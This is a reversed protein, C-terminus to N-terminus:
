AISGDGADLETDADRRPVLLPLAIPSVRFVLPTALTTVEGDTAVKVRRRGYRLWPRVTMRTLGFSRVDDSDGLSGMAGRLAIGLMALPGVPRLVIAALEGHEVVEAEAIGISQLQLVNNGVFLTTTRVIDGTAEAHDEHAIDIVLQRHERLLTALGSWWAVLRSRGFKRKDDERRELLDPYLGLSANVLFVRDNVLGFQIPRIVADLLGRAAAETDESIGHTRGFYNFTGQPIVGFPRGSRHAAQLVANITGDGGAAVIAGRQEIGLATVHEATERMARPDTVVVLEHRRGASELVNRITREAIAADGHGSAANLLVFLPDANDHRPIPLPGASAELMPTAVANRGTPQM